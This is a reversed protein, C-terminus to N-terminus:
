MASFETCYTCMIIKDKLISIFTDSHRPHRRKLPFKPKVKKPKRAFHYLARPLARVFITPGPGVMDIALAAVPSVSRQLPCRSIRMYMCVYKIELVATCFLVYLVISLPRLAIYVAASVAARLFFFFIFVFNVLSVICSDTTRFLKMFFRNITFGLSNLQYKYLSQSELGYLLM